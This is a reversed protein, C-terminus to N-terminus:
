NKLEAGGSISVVESGDDIAEDDRLVLLRTRYLISPPYSLRGLEWSGNNEAIPLRLLEMVLKQIEPDLTPSNKQNFSPHGQFFKVVLSLSQMSQLYDAFHAVFLLYLNVKVDPAQGQPVDKLTRMLRDEDLNLMVLNIANNRLAEVGVKTGDMFVIADRKVGTKLKIYGNLQDRLFRLTKDIM